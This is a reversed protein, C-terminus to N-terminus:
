VAATRPAAKYYSYSCPCRRASFYSLAVIFMGTRGFFTHASLYTYNVFDAPNKVHQADAAFRQKLPTRKM